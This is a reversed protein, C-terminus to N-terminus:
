ELIEIQFSGKNMHKLVVIKEKADEKAPIVITSSGSLVEQTTNILIYREDLALTQSLSFIGQLYAHTTWTEDKFKLLPGTMIRLPERDANLTILQPFFVGQEIGEGVHKRIFSKISFPIKSKNLAPLKILVFRSDGESFRYPLDDETLMFYYSEGFKIEPATVRPLDSCCKESFKKFYSIFSDNDGRLINLAEPKASEPLVVDSSKKEYIVTDTFKIKPNREQFLIERVEDSDYFVNRQTGDPDVTVFYRSNKEDSGPRRLTDSDVYEDLNVLTADYDSKQVNNNKIAGLIREREILEAELYKQEFISLKKPEQEQEQEQEQEKLAQTELSKKEVKKASFGGFSDKEVSYREAYSYPLCILQATIILCAALFAKNLKSM